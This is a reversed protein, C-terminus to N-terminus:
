RGGPAEGRGTLVKSLLVRKARAGVAGLAWPLLPAPRKPPIPVPSLDSPGRRWGSSERQRNRALPTVLPVRVRQVM